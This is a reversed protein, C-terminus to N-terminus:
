DLDVNSLDRTISDIKERSRNASNNSTSKNRLVQESGGNGRLIDLAAQSLHHGSSPAETTVTESDIENESADLNVKANEYLKQLHRYASSSIM